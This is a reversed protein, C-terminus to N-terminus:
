AARLSNCLTLQDKIKEIYTRFFFVLHDLDKHKELRPMFKLLDPLDDSTQKEKAEERLAKAAAALEDKEEKLRKLDGDATAFLRPGEPLEWNGEENLQEEAADQIAQDVTEFDNVAIAARLQERSSIQPLLGKARQRFEKGYTEGLIANTVPNLMLALMTDKQMNFDVWNMTTDLEKTLLHEQWLVNLQEM